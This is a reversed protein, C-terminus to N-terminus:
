GLFYGTMRLALAAETSGITSNGNASSTVRLGIYGTSGIRIPQQMTITHIDPAIHSTIGHMVVSTDNLLVRFHVRPNGGTEARAHLSLMWLGTSDITVRSSDTATSHGVGGRVFDQADFNVGQVSSGNNLVTYTSAYVSFSPLADQRILGTSVVAGSSLVAPAAFSQQQAFTVTTSFTVPGAFTSGGNVQLTALSSPGGINVSGTSITAGGTSVTLAGNVSLPHQLGNKLADEIATIEGDPDNFWSAQITQGIAKTPTPAYIGAPYTAM